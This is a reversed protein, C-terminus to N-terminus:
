SAIHYFFFSLLLLLDIFFNQLTQHILYGPGRKMHQRDGDQAVRIETM